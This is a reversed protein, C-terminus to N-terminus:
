RKRAWTNGLVVATISLVTVGFAYITMALDNRFLLLFSLAALAFLFCAVILRLRQIDYRKKKEPSSTNYGAILEDCKGRLYAIGVFVLIGAQILTFILIGIM